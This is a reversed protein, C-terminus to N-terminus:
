PLGFTYDVRFSVCCLCRLLGFTYEVRFFVYVHRQGQGVNKPLFQFYGSLQEQLNAEVQIAYVISNSKNNTLFLIHVLKMCIVYIARLQIGKFKAHLILIKM